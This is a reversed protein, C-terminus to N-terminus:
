DPEPESLPSVHSLLIYLQDPLTIATPKKPSISLVVTPRLFSSTIIGLSDIVDVYPYVYLIDTM